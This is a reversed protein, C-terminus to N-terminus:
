FFTKYNKIAKKVWTESLFFDNSFESHAFSNVKLFDAPDRQRTQLELILYSFKHEKEEARGTDREGYGGQIKFGLQSSLEQRLSIDM